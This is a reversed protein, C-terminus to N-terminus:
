LSFQILITIASDAAQASYMLSLNKDYFFTSFLRFENGIDSLFIEIDVPLKQKSRDSTDYFYITKNVQATCQPRSPMSKQGASRVNRLLM